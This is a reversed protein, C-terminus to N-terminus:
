TSLEEVPSPSVWVPCASMLLQGERSATLTEACSRAIAEAAGPPIANGIRKRHKAKSGGALELWQGRVKAPFGQIVALELTTMPRHWTGDQAEIVIRVPKKSEVDLPPGILSTLRPDAVNVGKDPKAAGIITHSPSAWGVVGHGGSREQYGLRPDAVQWPGNHHTGQGIICTSPHSWGTVGKAGDRRIRNLRPDCVSVPSNDHNAAGVITNSAEEWETQGYAGQRPSCTLRPDCVAAWGTSTHATALITHAGERWDEVGYKGDHTAESANIRPDCVGSWPGTTTTDGVVTHSGEEWGVVGYFGNHRTTSTSLAVESPLAKWDKGPPILALRLWNMPTMRPLQHLSGGETSGPVPVPLDGLVEGVGKVRQIPPEYLWEECQAMHRAVLLYRRRHQALGGVEGCDHITEAVAYGKAHLLQVALELLERSRSRIRPVNEFVILPPPTEWTELALYLSRLGLDNLRQYKATLSLAKPLCGSNGQCPPSMVIVDPCEPCITALDGPEMSELDAVTGKVGTIHELDKLAEADQDIAAAIEFGARQFGLVDGGLGCFLHLSRYPADADNCLTM